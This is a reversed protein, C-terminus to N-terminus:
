QPAPAAVGPQVETQQQGGIPAAAAENTCRDQFVVMGDQTYEKSLCTCPNPAAV